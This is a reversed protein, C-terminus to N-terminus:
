GKAPLHGVPHSRLRKRDPKLAAFAADNTQVQEINMGFASLLDRELRNNAVQDDLWLIRRDKLLKAAKVARELARSQDRKTIDVHGKQVTSAVITNSKTAADAAKAMSNEAFKLEVGAVNIGMLRPLLQTVIPERFLYIVWFALGGWIFSPAHAALEKLVSMNGGRVYTHASLLM